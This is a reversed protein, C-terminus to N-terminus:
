RRRGRMNMVDGGGGSGAKRGDGGCYVMVELVMM